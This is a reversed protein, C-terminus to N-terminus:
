PKAAKGTGSSAAWDEFGKAFLLSGDKFRVTQGGLTIDDGEAKATPHKGSACVTIITVAKGGIEASQSKFHDDGKVNLNLGAAVIVADCGAAGSFDVALSANATSVVGGGATARFATTQGKFIGLEMRRGLAWLYVPGGRVAGFGKTDRLMTTLLIDDKDQWRNRFMCIGGYSDHVAHPLVEAPNREATGIPWNVLALV